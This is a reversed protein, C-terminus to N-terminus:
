KAAQLYKDTFVIKKTVHAPDVLTKFVSYCDDIHERLSYLLHRQARLLRKFLKVDTEATYVEIEHNYEELVHAFGDTVARLSVHYISFPHRLGHQEHFSMTEPVNVLYNVGVPAFNGDQMMSRIIKM